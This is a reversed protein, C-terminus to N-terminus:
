LLFRHLLLVVDMRSKVETHNEHCALCAKKGTDIDTPGLSM